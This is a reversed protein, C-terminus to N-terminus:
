TSLRAPKKAPEAEQKAWRVINMPVVEAPGGLWMIVITANHFGFCGAQQIEGSVGRWEVSQYQSCADPRNDTLYVISGDPMPITGLVDADASQSMALLWLILLLKLM